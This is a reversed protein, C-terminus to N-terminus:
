SGGGSLFIKAALFVKGVDRVVKVRNRRYVAEGLVQVGGNSFWDQNLVALLMIRRPCGRNMLLGKGPWM